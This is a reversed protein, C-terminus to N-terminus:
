GQAASVAPPHSALANGDGLAQRDVGGDADDGGALAGGAVGRSFAGEAASESRGGTLSATEIGGRDNTGGWDAREDAGPM